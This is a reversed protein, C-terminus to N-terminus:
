NPADTMVAVGNPDTIKGGYRGICMFMVENNQFLTQGQDTFRMEQGSRRYLRYLSLPLFALYNNPIDQQVRYPWSLVQYSGEDPGFVRRADDAGVPIARVRQYTVDSSVFAPRLAANRYQKPVAFLLGELDGVTLQGNGGMASPVNLVSAANFIGQPTTTGAGNAIQKDLDHLLAKGILNVIIGGLDAVMADALLHRGIIISCTVDYISTDLAAVMGATNFPTMNGGDATGWNVTPNKISAGHATASRPMEVLDVYPLLEGFLLPFTVIAEDLWIPNVSVGGSTSDSLLAKVKSPEVSKEYQGGIEGCWQDKAAMEALLSKEHETLVVNSGNCRSRSWLWKFFVGAKALTRESHSQVEVGNFGKVPQGTRFHKAPYRTDSYRTSPSKVDVAGAKGNGGLAEQSTPNTLMTQGEGNSQVRESKLFPSRDDAELLDGGSVEGSALKTFLLERAKDESANDALGFKDTLLERIGLTVRM